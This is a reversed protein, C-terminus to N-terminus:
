KHVVLQRVVMEHITMQAGWKMLSPSHTMVMLLPDDFM